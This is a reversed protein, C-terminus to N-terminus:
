ETTSKRQMLGKLENVGSREREKGTLNQYKARQAMYRSYDSRIGPRHKAMDNIDKAEYGDMQHLLNFEQHAAMLGELEMRPTSKIEAWSMHLEKMLPIYLFVAEPTDTM